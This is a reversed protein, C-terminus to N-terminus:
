WEILWGNSELRSQRYEPSRAPRPDSPDLLVQYTDRNVPVDEFNTQIECPFYRGNRSSPVWGASQLRGVRDGSEDVLVPRPYSSEFVTLALDCSLSSEVYADVTMMDFVVRVETVEPGQSVTLAISTDPDIREGPRPSQEIVLGEPVSNSYAQRRTVSTLESDALTARAQSYQQGVVDPVEVGRNVVSLVIVAVGIVVAVLGAAGGLIFWRNVRPRSVPTTADIPTSGIVEQTMQPEQKRVWAGQDTWPNSASQAANSM